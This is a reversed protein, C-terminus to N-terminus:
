KCYDSYKMVVFCYMIVKMYDLVVIVCYGFNYFLLRIKSKKLVNECNYCM